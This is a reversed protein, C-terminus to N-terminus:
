DDAAGHSAGQQKKERKKRRCARCLKALSYVYGKAVEYWWKQQAATWIEESDCGACTFPRDLYYGREVFEPKGYSNNPALTDLKVPLGGAAKWERVSREQSIRRSAKEAACRKEARRRHFPANRRERERQPAMRRLVDLAM